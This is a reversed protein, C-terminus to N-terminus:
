TLLNTPCFMIRAISLRNYSFFAHPAWLAVCDHTGFVSSLPAVKISQKIPDLAFPDACQAVV